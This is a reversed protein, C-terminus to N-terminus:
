RNPRNPWRLGAAKGRKSAVLGAKNLTQLVKPLYGAPVKTVKAIVPTVVADGGIQAIAM